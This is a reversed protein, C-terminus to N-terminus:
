LIEFSFSLRRQCPSKQVTLLLPGHDGGGGGGGIMIKNNNSQHDHFKAFTDLTIYETCHHCFMNVITVYNHRLLRYKLQHM